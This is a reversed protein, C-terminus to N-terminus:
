RRAAADDRQGHRGRRSHRTRPGRHLRTVAARGPRDGGRRRAPVAPDLGREDRDDRPHRGAPAPRGARPEPDGARHGGGRRTRRPLGGRHREGPGDRRPRRVPRVAQGPGRGVARPRLPRRDAGSVAAAGRVARLDGAPGAGRGVGGHRRAASQPARRPPPLLRRRRRRDAGRGQRRLRAAGLVGPHEGVARDGPGARRRGLAAGARADPREQGPLARRLAGVGADRAREQRALLETADTRLDRLGALQADIWGPDEGPRPISLEFEHPGRHGYRRAFEDRTIEGGALRTLGTLLGLSALEHSATVGTLMAEADVDGAMRRLTERVKVLSTGGQKGAAELMRCSTVLHPEIESEYLAALAPGTTTAAIRGRLEECRQPSAALFARMSKLYRRVRLRIGIATPVARRVTEWRVATKPMDLGPPIKGFVSELAGLLSKVRLAKAIAYVPTLNMYFRGGINGVMDFGPIASASMAEHIFLQVFSWTIPTMVDPIAEGFNGATWLYEGELSDNWEEVQPPLGTIPRAQVIAFEGDRRAWEVDVPVGFLEQIRAGLGALEVAQAEDLVPRDRLDDPVARDETGAATRVTMVTKAGTTARTVVGRSVTVTDPTVEGGVVAEGLGWSANIVTETRSGTVPDATFLIGSADAPVLEQVVVALAVDDHSVGHEDRYAVARPNWLSAWCRRVADLVADGGRINLYTDQQGAFSLTPLDEATASSRVAVAVDDGLARYARHIEEAM